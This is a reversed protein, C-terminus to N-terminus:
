KSESERDDSELRARRRMNWWFAAALLVIGAGVFVPRRDVPPQADQPVVIPPLPTRPGESLTAAPLSPSTPSPPPPPPATGVPAVELAVRQAPDVAPDLTALAAKCADLRQTGLKPDIDEICEGSLAVLRDATGVVLHRSAGRVGSKPDAYELTAEILKGDPSRVEQWPKAHEPTVREKDHFWELQGRIAVDRQSALEVEVRTVILAAGRAPSLYQTVSIAKTPAGGFHPL